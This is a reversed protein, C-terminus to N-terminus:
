ERFPEIWADPEPEVHRILWGRGLPKLYYRYQRAYSDASSLVAPCGPSNAIRVIKESESQEVFGKRSDFLCDPAYFRKRFPARRERERNLDATRSRFFELMFGKISCVIPESRRTEVNGVLDFRKNSINTSASTYLLPAESCQSGGMWGSGGCAPCCYNGQEFKERLDTKCFCEFQVAQILFTKGSSILRYRLSGIFSASVTDVLPGDDGESIQVIKESLSHELNGQRNEWLCDETYFRQRFPGFSKIEERLDDSRAQSFERMFGDVTRTENM